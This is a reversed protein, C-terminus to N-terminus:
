FTPINKRIYGLVMYCIHMQLPAQLFLKGGVEDLVTSWSDPNWAILMQPGIVEPVIKVVFPHFFCDFFFFFQLM